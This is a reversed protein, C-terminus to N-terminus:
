LSACCPGGGVVIADDGAAWCVLRMVEPVIAPDPTEDTRWARSREVMSRWPEPLTAIAWAVARPKSQLKNCALTALARCMTEVVYAQHGRPLLWNPEDPQDAWDAWDRLRTRAAARLDDSSIPDILTRPDPGLLAVGCERVTWRELIWNDRHESWALAEGQGLTPHRLGPKFRRLAARDIYAMEVRNAYPHPLAAIQAHLAALTAFEADNVPWETVALVDIDSTEPIFDGLALSGRLYLGVLKERLRDRIGPLLTDLMGAVERRLNM